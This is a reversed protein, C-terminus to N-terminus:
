KDDKKLGRQKTIWESLRKLDRPKAAPKADSGSSTSNYPDFGAGTGKPAADAPRQAHTDYPDFGPGRQDPSTGFTKPKQPPDDAIKLDPSLKKLRETNIDAGFKGSEISWEWVANGKSDFSVRGSTKEIPTKIPTKSDPAADGSPEPKSPKSSSM